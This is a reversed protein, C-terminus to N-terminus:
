RLADSTPFITIITIDLNSIQLVYLEFYKTAKAILRFGFHFLIITAM